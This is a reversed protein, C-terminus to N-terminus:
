EDLVPNPRPWARAPIYRDLFTDIAEFYGSAFRVRNIANKRLRVHDPNDSDAHPYQAEPGILHHYEEPLGSVSEWFLHNSKPLVRLHADPNSALMAKMPEFNSAPPVLPDNSGLLVLVPKHLATLAPQPDYRYIRCLYHYAGLRCGSLLLDLWRTTWRARTRAKQESVGQRLLTEFRETAIQARVTQAPGAALILAAVRPDDAALPIVYGGQSHGYLVTRTADIDSHSSLWDLAARVNDARDEFNEKRWDGTSAGVGKKGLTLVAFGRQVLRRQLPGEAPSIGDQSGSISILVPPKNKNDPRLFTAAIRDTGSTVFVRELWYPQGSEPDLIRRAPQPWTSGEAAAMLLLLSILLCWKM